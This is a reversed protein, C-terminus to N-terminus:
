RGDTDEWKGVVVVDAPPISEYAYMAMVRGDEHKVTTLREWVGPAWYVMPSQRRYDRLAYAGGRSIDVTITRARM